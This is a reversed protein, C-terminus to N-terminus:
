NRRVENFMMRYLKERLNNIHVKNSAFIFLQKGPQSFLGDSQRGSTFVGVQLCIASYFLQRNFGRYLTAEPTIGGAHGGQASGLPLKGPPRIIGNVCQTNNGCFNHTPHRCYKM